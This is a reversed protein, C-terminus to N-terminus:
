DHAKAEKKHPILLYAVVGALMLVVIVFVMIVASEM